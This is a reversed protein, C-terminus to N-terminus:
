MLVVAAAPRATRIVWILPTGGALKVDEYHGAPTYKHPEMDQGLMLEVMIRGLTSDPSM